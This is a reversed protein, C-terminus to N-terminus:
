TFDSYPTAHGVYNSLWTNIHLILGAYFLAWNIAYVLAISHKIDLRILTNIASSTFWNAWNLCVVLSILKESVALNGM